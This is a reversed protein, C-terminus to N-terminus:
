FKQIILGTRLKPEVYTSKPPMTLKNDAVDMIQQVSTPFLTFAIDFEGSDVKAILEEIKHNGSLYDLRPDTKSDEIGLIPKTIFDELISVDLNELVGTVETNLHLRYWTGKVYMGFSKAIQPEYHEEGLNTVKFHQNLEEIIQAQTKNNFGKVLRHFATVKVQSEPILLSYFYNFTEDGSYNGGLAERKSKAYVACSACRHHGDAIYFDPLEAYAQNLVAIDAEDNIVWVRHRTGKSGNFDYEPETCFYKEYLAYITDNDQHTLLVPVGIAEIIDINKALDIEKQTRTNEHKKVHGNIYEDVAVSGIIGSFTEEGKTQKYLYYCPTTDQNLVGEEQMLKLFDKAIPFHKEPTKLEDPFKLHPKVVHLYSMPNEMMKTIFHSDGVGDTVNASVKGALEPLPRLAKFPKVEPM